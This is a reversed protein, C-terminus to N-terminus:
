SSAFDLIAKISNLRALAEDTVTLGYQETLMLALTAHDLSDLGGERFNWDVAWGDVAPNNTIERLMARVDAEQLQAM